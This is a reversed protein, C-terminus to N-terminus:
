KPWDEETSIKWYRSSIPILVPFASKAVSLQDIRTLPASVMARM